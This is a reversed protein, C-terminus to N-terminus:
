PAISVSVVQLELFNGVYPQKIDPSKIDPVSLSTNAVQHHDGDIVYFDITAQGRIPITVTYDTKYVAHPQRDNGDFDNTYNLFYSQKPSSVAMGFINFGNYCDDAPAVEDPVAFPIPYQQDTQPPHIKCAGQGPGLNTNAAPGHITPLGGTYFVKSTSDLTGGSYWYREAVGAVRLTVNYTTGADGGFQKTLHQNEPAMGSNLLAPSNEDCTCGACTGPKSFCPKLLAFGDLIKAAATPDGAAGGAGGGAAGAVGASGASGASGAAAGAASGGLGAAGAAQTIGGGGMAGAAGSSSGGAAIGGSQGASPSPGGAAGAQAAAGGSTSTGAAGSPDGPSPSGSSSCAAGLALLLFSLPSRPSRWGRQERPLISRAQQIASSLNM